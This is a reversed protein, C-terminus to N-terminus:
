ICESFTFSVTYEKKGTGAHSRELDEEHKSEMASDIGLHVADRSTNSPHSDEHSGVSHIGHNLTDNMSDENNVEDTAVVVTIIITTQILLM